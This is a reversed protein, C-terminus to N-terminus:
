KTKSINSRSLIKNKYFVSNSFKIFIFRSLFFIPLSIFFMLFIWGIIIHLVSKGYSTIVLSFNDFSKTMLILNDNFINWNLKNSSTIFEGLRLSPLLLAIYLPLSIWVGLYVATQNLKFIFALIIGLVTHTGLLPFTGAWFGATLAAAFRGPSLGYTLIKLFLNKADKRKKTIWKLSINEENTKNKM